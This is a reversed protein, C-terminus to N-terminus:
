KSQEYNMILVEDVIKRHKASASVLHKTKITIIKFDRYLKKIFDTKSNSLIFKVGKKHLKKCVNALREQENKDFGNKQYASFTKKNKDSDYPPDLYVFDGKKASKLCDEFDNNMIKVNQLYKSINKLNDFDFTKTGSKHKSPVNYHGDSNVRYLGNFNNKNLYILRATRLEDSANSISLERKDYNNDIKSKDISAIKDYFPSLKKDDNKIVNHGYEMLLLYETITKLSKPNKLTKYAIILEQNLDNIIANQSQLTFLLAGGGVFPEYYNNYKKPVYKKIKSALKRKGGVWKVFPVMTINQM